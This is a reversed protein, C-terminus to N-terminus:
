NLFDLYSTIERFSQGSFHSLKLMWLIKFPIYKILISTYECFSLHLCNTKFTTYCCISKWSKLVWPYIIHEKNAILVAVKLFIEWLKSQFRSWLSFVTFINFYCKCNRSAMCIKEWKLFHVGFITGSYM